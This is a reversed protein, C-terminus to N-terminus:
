KRTHNLKKWLGTSYAHKLDSALLLQSGTVPHFQLLAFNVHAAANKILQQVLIGIYEIGIEMFPFLQKFSSPIYLFKYFYMRCCIQLQM